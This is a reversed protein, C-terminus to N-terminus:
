KIENYIKFIEKQTKSSLNTKSSKYIMKLQDNDPIKIDDTVISYSTNEPYASKLNNGTKNYTYYTIYTETVINYFKKDPLYASIGSFLYPNGVCIFTNESNLNAKIYKAIDKSGSFNYKIDESIVIPAIILGSIFLISFSIKSIKDAKINWLGFILILLILFMKQYLIGNFYVYLFALFIYTIGTSCILFIKKDAKFLSYLYIILPIYFLTIGIINIYKRSFASIACIKYVFANSIM